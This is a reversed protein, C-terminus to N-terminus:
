KLFYFKVGLTTEWFADNYRGRTKNEIQDTLLYHYQGQINIGLHDTALYEFGLGAALKGTINTKFESFDSQPSSALAGVSGIIFPTYRTTPYLKYNTYAEAMLLSTKFARNTALEGVGVRLGHEWQPSNHYSSQLFLGPRPSAGSYDGNYLLAGASAGAAIKGRRKKHHQFFVDTNKNRQKELLYEQVAPSEMFAEESSEWLGEMIGEIILSHVAKEIADKVALESPENYSIGTEAELLRKFKVYRFTGVDISQSLITKTTYVTKLIRGNSTSIARLYVTVRDERYQGSGGTGFYRLGAGGTITNADYSIIGGELIIGAFLLPPLLNQQQQNGKLYEARSSRIIKRENLLNGLNERELPVFWDSEELARLLISTAGQTVATSWNAGVESPKYQGTQDRFKYVSAVVKEKPAPLNEMKRLAPTEVGLRAEKHTLPQNLFPVCSSGLIAIICGFWIRKLM